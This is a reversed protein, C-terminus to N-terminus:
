LTLCDGDFRQDIMLIFFGGVIFNTTKRKVDLYDPQIMSGSTDM